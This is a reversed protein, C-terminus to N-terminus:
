SKEFDDVIQRYLAMDNPDPTEFVIYADTLDKETLAELLHELKMDGDRYPLHKRERNDKYEIGSFQFSTEELATRGLTDEIRDLADRYAGPSKLTGDTHAQYHGWDVVPRLFDGDSCIKLIDDFSGFDDGHAMNEVGLKM